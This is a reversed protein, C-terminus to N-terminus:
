NPTLREQKATYLRHLTIDQVNDKSIQIHKTLLEKAQNANGTSIAKLIAGHERYTAEVRLPLSFDLRRIIRIRETISHHLLLMQKNTLSEVLATHFQEDLRAILHPDTNLMTGELPWLVSLHEVLRNRSDQTCLQEIAHNELLIRLDYLEKLTTFDIPKIQWGSRFLVEVFGEKQLQFLAERVPTRSVNMTKAVETESFRDGPLLQFDFIKQKLAEVIKEVM